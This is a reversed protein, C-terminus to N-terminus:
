EGCPSHPNFDGAVTIVAIIFPTVGWVPLASQFVGVVFYIDVM